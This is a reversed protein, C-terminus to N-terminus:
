RGGVFVDAGRVLRKHAIRGFAGAEALFESVSSLLPKLSDVTEPGLGLQEYAIGVEDGDLQHNRMVTVLQALEDVQIELNTTLSRWMEVPDAEAPQSEATAGKSESDSNLKPLFRTRLYTETIEEGDHDFSTSCHEATTAALLQRLYALGDHKSMMNRLLVGPDHRGIDSSRRGRGGRGTRTLHEDKGILVPNVALALGGLFGLARQHPGFGGVAQVKQPELNYRTVLEALARELLEDPDKHIVDFWKVRLPHEDTQYFARDRCMSTITSAISAGVAENQRQLMLRAHAGVIQGRTQTTKREQNNSLVMNAIALSGAGCIKAAMDAIAVLKNRYPRAHHTPLADGLSVASPNLLVNRQIETFSGVEMLGDIVELAYLAWVDQLEWQKPAAKPMHRQRVSDQVVHWAPNAKKVSPFPQVYLVVFAYYSRVRHVSRILSSRSAVTDYWEQVRRKDQESNGCANPFLSKLWSDEFALLERVKAVDAATMDRITFGGKGNAWHALALRTNRGTLQSLVQQSASTRRAGDVAQLVWGSGEDGADFLFPVVVPPEKIGKVIVDDIFERDEVAYRHLGLQLRAKDAQHLVQAASEVVMKPLCLGSCDAAKSVASKGAVALEARLSALTRGNIM